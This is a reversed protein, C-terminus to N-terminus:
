YGSDIIYRAQGLFTAQKMGLDVSLAKLHSVVPSVVQEMYSPLEFASDAVGSTDMLIELRSPRARSKGLAYLVVSVCPSQFIIYDRM